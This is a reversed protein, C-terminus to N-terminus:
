KLFEKIDQQLQDKAGLKGRRYNRHAKHFDVTKLSEVSLGKFPDYFSGKVQYSNRGVRTVIGLVPLPDEWEEPDSLHKDILADGIKFKPKEPRTEIKIAIYRIILLIGIVGLIYGAIELLDKM